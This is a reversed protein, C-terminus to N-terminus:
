DKQAAAPVKRGALEVAVDLIMDEQGGVAKRRGLEMLIERADVGFRKAARQAHLLFTSYVGAYGITLSSRDITPVKRIIPLVTEEAVDMLRFLDIGTEFGKKDLVAALVETQTNGSGAGLGCTSGDIWTAGEEIAALSNAIALGLNNHAHFGIEVGDTLATRLARARDRAQEILLAGASDVVFVCDAGYSEMLLAQEALKGSEIMHAMM